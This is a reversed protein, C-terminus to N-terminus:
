KAASISDVQIMKTGAKLTGTVTVMKGAFTEAKEQDSLFYVDNGDFLVFQAGHADVCAITCEADNSGMRMRSHDALACMSDTIAGTFTQNSQASPWAAILLLSFILSKM